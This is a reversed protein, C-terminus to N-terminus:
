QRKNEGELLMRSTIADEEENSIEEQRLQRLSTIFGDNQRRESDFGHAKIQDIVASDEYANDRLKELDEM